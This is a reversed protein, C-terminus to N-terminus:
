RLSRSWEATAIMKELVQKVLAQAQAADYTCSTRSCLQEIEKKLEGVVDSTTCELALGQSQWKAVLAAWQAQTLIQQNSTLFNDCTAGPFSPDNVGPPQPIPSCFQRDRIHVCSSLLLAGMMTFCLLTLTPM